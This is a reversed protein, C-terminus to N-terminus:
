RERDREEGAIEKERWREEEREEERRKREGRDGGTERERDLQLASLM